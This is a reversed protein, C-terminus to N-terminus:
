QIDDTFAMSTPVIATLLPNGSLPTLNGGSGISYGYVAGPTTQTGTTVYLYQGGPEAYVGNVNATTVAPNLAVPTLAGTISDVSFASVGTSDSTYVYKGSAEVALGTPLGALPVSSVQSIHGSSFYDIAYSRLTQDGCLVYLFSENPDIALAIPKAGIAFPSGDTYPAIFQGKAEFLEPSDWYQYASISNGTQNAVYVLRGSPDIVIPGAGAGAAFTDFITSGQRYSILSWSGSLYEYTYVVANVPDTEFAFQGSPDIAFGGGSAADGFSDGTGPVGAASLPFVLLNSPAVASAMGVDTGWPWLSLSFAPNLTSNNQQFTLTGDSNVIYTSLNNTSNASSTIYATKSTYQVSSPGAAVATNIGANPSIGFRHVSKASGDAGIEFSHIYPANETLYLFQGSPDVTLDFAGADSQTSNLHALTGDAAISFSEVTASNADRATDMSCASYAVKGDISFRVATPNICTALTGVSKLKGTARDLSYTDISTGQSNAMYAVNGGPHFSFSGALNSIAFPTGAIPTLAGTSSDISYGLASANQYNNSFVVLYLYQGLPDIAVRSPSGPLTATNVLALLGTNPDASFTLLTTASNVADSAYAFKGTPEFDLCGVPVSQAFPSGSVPTLVGHVSDISYIQIEGTPTPLAGGNATVTSGVYLFKGLPDTTVCSFADTNYGGRTIYAAMRLQGSGADVIAKSLSFGANTTFYLFRPEATVVLGASASFTGSVASVASYGTRLPTVNGSNDISAVFSNGNTWTTSASVDQTSSDSYVLSASLKNPASGILIRPNAPVINLAVPIAPNVTLASTGSLTGAAGTITVNGQKLTKALGNADITALTPDSTSWVISTIPGTSGDTFPGSAQFQQTFGAAVAPHGPSVNVATPVAPGVALAANGSVSGSSAKITVNGQKLTTALGSANVTAITSDSSSWVFSGGAHPGDSYTAQATFQQTLGAAVSPQAPTVSISQLIPGTSTGTSSGGGGCSVLFGGILVVLFLSIPEAFIQSFPNRRRSIM